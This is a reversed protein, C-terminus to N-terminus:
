GYRIEDFLKLFKLQHSQGLFKAKNREALKKITKLINSNNDDKVRTLEKCILNIRINMDLYSDYKENILDYFTHYGQSNLYNITQQCGLVIFPKGMALLQWIDLSTFLANVESIYASDKSPAWRPTVITFLSSAHYEINDNKSIVTGKDYLNNEKLEHILMDRHWSTHNSFTHFLITPDFTNIDYEKVPLVTESSLRNDRLLSCYTGFDIKKNILLRSEIQSWDISYSRCPELMEKYSNNVDSTVIIINESLIGIARFNDAMAKIRLIELSNQLLHGLLLLKIKGNRLYSLTNSPIELNVGTCPEIPYFINKNFKDSKFFFKNNTYLTVECNNKLMAYYFSCVHQVQADLVNHIPMPWKKINIDYQSAGNPVPGAATVTDYYFSIDNIDIKSSEPSEVLNNISSM